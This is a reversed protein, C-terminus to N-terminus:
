LMQCDLRRDFSHFVRVFECEAALWRDCVDACNMLGDGNLLFGDGRQIALYTHEHAVYTSQRVLFRLMM